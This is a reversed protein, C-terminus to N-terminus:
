EQNLIVITISVVLKTDSTYEVTRFVPPKTYNATSINNEIEQARPDWREFPLSVESETLEQHHPVLWQARIGFISPFQEGSPSALTGPELQGLSNFFNICKL